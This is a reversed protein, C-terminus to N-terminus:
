KPKFVLKRRSVILKKAICQCCNVWEDSITQVIVVVSANEFVVYGVSRATKLEKGEEKAEDIKLWGECVAHHDLWEILEVPYDSV